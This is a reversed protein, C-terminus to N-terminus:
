GFYGSSGARFHAGAISIPDIFLYWEKRKNNTKQILMYMCGKREQEKGGGGGNGDEERGLLPPTRKGRKQSLLLIVEKGEGRKSVPARWTPERSTLSAHSQPTLWAKFSSLVQLSCLLCRHQKGVGKLHWEQYARGIHCRTNM